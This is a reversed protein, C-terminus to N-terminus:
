SIWAIRLLEGRRRDLLRLCRLLLAGQVESCLIKWQRITAGLGVCMAYRAMKAGKFTKPIELNQKRKYTAAKEMVNVNSHGRTAPKRTLVPGWKNKENVLGQDQYHDHTELPSRKLSINQIAQVAESPLTELDDSKSEDEDSECFDVSRLISECYEMSEIKGDSKHIGGAYGLLTKAPTLNLSGSPYVDGSKIGKGDVTQEDKDAVACELIFNEHESDSCFMGAQHGKQKNKDQKALNAKDLEDSAEESDLLDDSLGDKQANGSVDEQGKAAGEGEMDEDDEIDIVSDVGGVQEFGEVTFGLLFLKKKMEILREFPIKTPDRCAIKIRVNEFLGLCVMGTWMLSCELCLLLRLLFSEM